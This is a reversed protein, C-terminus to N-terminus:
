IVVSILLSGVSSNVGNTGAATTTSGPGGTGITCLYSTTSFSAYSQSYIVGGAGGGGGRGNGGGGGGAVVLVDFINSGLDTIVFSDTSLFTHVTYLGDYTITGGTAKITSPWISSRKFNDVEGLSWVSSASSFTPLTYSGIRNGRKRGM